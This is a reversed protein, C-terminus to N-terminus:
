EVVQDVSVLLTPPITVGIAKATKLNLALHFTRPGEFPLDSVKAGHLLRDAYEAARQFNEAPEAGYSALAGDEVEFAFDHIAPIRRAIEAAILNARGTVIMPSAAVILGGLDRAEGRDLVTAVDSPSAIGLLVIQPGGMAAMAAAKALMLAHSSNNVDYVLGVRKMPGALQDLLEIRKPLLVDDLTLIGTVNGTPRAVSKSFGFAVPDPSFAVVIPITQTRKVLDPVAAANITVIVAPQAAVVREALDPIRAADNSAYPEAVFTQGEVDGLGRLGDRIADFATLDAGFGVALFAVHPITVAARITGPGVVAVSGVMAVFDRRRM